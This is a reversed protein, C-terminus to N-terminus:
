RDGALWGAGFDLPLRRMEFITAILEGEGGARAPNLYEWVVDGDPTVELARGYDSETILTNGNPLRSAAGCMGTYLPDDDEGLYAWTIGQTAPNFELVKSLGAQGKNDFLMINGNALVKSDHQARWMGSGSWIVAEREMDIIAIMDIQRMSVLVNGKEYPPMRKSFRGDMVDVANTHLLDGVRRMGHVTLATSFYSNEFADLVSVSRLVKGNSSLITIFDELVPATSNIRPILHAKRTLVYIRGDDMVQLAHHEGGAHAWILRSNRDVKILGLGEFIALADGNEFVHVYRWFDASENNEAARVSDPFARLFPFEWEHLVRGDMTALIAGAHHGSNYLNLGPQVRDPIHVTVGSRGPAPTTGSLYGISRLREVEERQADSMVSSRDTPKLTRWRGTPAIEHLTRGSDVGQRSSQAVSSTEGAGVMCLILVLFVGRFAMGRPSRACLNDNDRRM